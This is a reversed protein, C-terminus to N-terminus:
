LALLERRARAYSQTAERLKRPLRSYGRFSTSNNSFVAQELWDQAIKSDVVSLSKGLRHAWSPFANQQIDASAESALKRLAVEQELLHEAASKAETDGAQYLALLFQSKGLSKGRKDFARTQLAAIGGRWNAPVRLAVIYEQSGELSSQNSGRLKFYVGTGRELTGSATLTEKPPLLEYKVKEIDKKSVNGNGNAKVLDIAGSASVGLSKVREENTEVSVHGVYNSDLTTKPLFDYVRLGQRATHMAVFLRLDEQAVGFRVLTSVRIRAEVLREEPHIAAFEDDTIDICPVLPEADFRVDNAVAPTPAMTAILAISCAISYLNALIPRLQPRPNTSM